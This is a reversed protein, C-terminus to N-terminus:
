TRDAVLGTRQLDASAAELAARDRIRLTRGSRRILGERSLQALTRAVTERTTGALGALDRQTPMPAILWTGSREDARALRLLERCVRAIAGLTTVETLKEDTTRIIRVLDRLLGLAVEPQARILSEFQIPPLAALLCDEIAVVSASRALGDIASLEGFHGGAGIVAYVVERGTPSFDVARVSGEVVFFVDRNDSSRDIIQQRAAYRQWRCRQELARLESESLARLLAVHRLERRPTDSTVVGTM